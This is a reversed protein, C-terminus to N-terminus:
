TEILVTMTGGCVMGEEEAVAGTMDITVVRYTGSGIMRVAQDIVEQEACGGGISGQVKAGANVVMKAGARRPVSGKTTMITVVAVPEDCGALYRVVELDLDTMGPAAQGAKREKRKWMILEALISVAIEEPLVGGIDLGIPTCISAMAARDCGEAALMAFLERVRRRSGIMGLYYPRTHRLLYRLCDADHRHGRTLVAVYDWETIELSPLARGFSECITHAAWPFRAASAFDPRDDVVTVSFGTKAAFECLPLAVHGGGLIILREQPAVPEYFCSGAATQELVPSVYGDPDTLEKKLDTGTTGAFCTKILVPQGTGTRATIEDYIKM